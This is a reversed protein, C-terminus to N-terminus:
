TDAALSYLIFLFGITMILNNTALLSQTRTFNLIFASVTTGIISGVIMVLGVALYIMDKRETRVYSKVSIAVLLLGTVVVTISFVTYLIETFPM